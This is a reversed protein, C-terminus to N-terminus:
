GKPTQFGRATNAPTENRKAESRRRGTNQRVKLAKHPSDAIGDDETKPTRVMQVMQVVQVKQVVQVMQVVQVEQVMQVM